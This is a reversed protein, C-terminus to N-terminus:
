YCQSINQPLGKEKAVPPQEDSLTFCGGGNSHLKYIPEPDATVGNIKIEAACTTGSVSGDNCEWRLPYGESTAPYHDQLTVQVRTLSLSGGGTTAIVVVIIAAVALVAGGIVWSRRRVWGAVSSPEAAHEPEARGSGQDADSEAQAARQDQWEGRSPLQPVTTLNLGCAACFVQSGARSGCSPCVRDGADITPEEDM